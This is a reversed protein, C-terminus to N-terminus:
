LGKLEEIDIGLVGAIAKAKTLTENYESDPISDAIIAGGVQFEFRNGQIILTRIVVSTDVSGDGGFWGTIGSYVGRKQPELSSCLEMARIKPTGTMSGPPFCNKIFELSSIDPKKQGKVTSSMHHVTAYSTIDFLSEVEVSGGVSSRSFDNRMLDVIMLNEAREKESNHLYELAGRDKKNDSFRPASGKIPRTDARGQEDIYIFREPSSSIIYTDNGLSLFSSYPSPSAACLNTFIAFPNFDSAFEGYFKRTLNAQYLDGRFIAEKIIAVRALYEDKTMNSQLNRIKLGDDQPFQSHLEACSGTKNQIRSERSQLSASHRDTNEYPFLEVNGFRRMWLDPLNIIGNSDETLSELRNKLGYGLYGFWANEYKDKNDTLVGEFETFDDSIIEQELGTALISQGGSYDNRLGSYLLVFPEGRAFVERAAEISSGEQLKEESM